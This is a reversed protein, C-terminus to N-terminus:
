FRNEEGVMDCAARANALTDDFVKKEHKEKETWSADLANLVDRRSVVFKSTLDVDLNVSASAVDIVLRKVKAKENEDGNGITLGQLNRALAKAGKSDTFDFVGSGQHRDRAEELANSLARTFTARISKDGDADIFSSAKERDIGLMSAFKDALRGADMEPGKQLLDLFYKIREYDDIPSTIPPKEISFWFTFHPVDVRGLKAIPKSGDYVLSLIRETDPSVAANIEYQYNFWEVGVSVGPLDIRGVKFENKLIAKVIEDVLKESSDKGVERLWNLIDAWELLLQEKLADISGQATAGETFIAWGVDQLVNSVAMFDVFRKSAVYVYQDPQAKKKNNAWTDYSNHLKAELFGTERVVSRADMNPVSYNGDKSSEVKGKEAKVGSPLIFEYWATGTKANYTFRAEGKAEYLVIEQDNSELKMAADRVVSWFERRAQNVKELTERARNELQQCTAFLDHVKKRPDGSPPKAPNFPNLDPGPKLPNPIEFGRAGQFTVLVLGLAVFVPWGGCSM